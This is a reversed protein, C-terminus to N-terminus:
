VARGSPGSFILIPTAFLITLLATMNTNTSEDIDTETAARDLARTQLRKIALIAPEFGALFM